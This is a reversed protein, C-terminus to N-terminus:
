ASTAYRGPTTGVYRRFVRTLHAQDYFGADSAAQAGTRGRLLLRRAVDVRRGVLYAHPAIGYAATFSRVLHVPHAQLTAAAEALTPGPGTSADLLERLAAALRASRGAPRPAPSRGLRQRLRECILTLRSEAEFRDGPAAAEPGLAAHLQDIRQRLLPDRLNPEDAAAGAMDEGLASADLYLVRKRFGDSTAARGDHPVHPPLLTVQAATTGHACRDLDYRIMGDDVVLLTWTDHTHLPYAHEVFSAHFVEAIGPVDPHWARVWEM